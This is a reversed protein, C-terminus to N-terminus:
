NQSNLYTPIIPIECIKKYVQNLLTLSSVLTTRFSNPPIRVIMNKRLKSVGAERQGLGAGEEKGGTSCGHLFTSHGFPALSSSHLDVWPLHDRSHDLHTQGQGELKSSMHGAAAMPSGAQDVERPGSLAETEEECAPMDYITVTTQSGKSQSRRANTNYRYNNSELM